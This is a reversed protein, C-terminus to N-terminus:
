WIASGECFAARVMAQRFSEQNGAMEGAELVEMDLTDKKKRQGVEMSTYKHRTKWSGDGRNSNKGLRPSM